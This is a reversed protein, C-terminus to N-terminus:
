GLQALFVDNNILTKNHEQTVSKCNFSHSVNQLVMDMRKKNLM